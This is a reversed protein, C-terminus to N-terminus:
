VALYHAFLQSEHALLMCLRLARPSAPAGGFVMEGGRPVDGVLLPARAVFLEDILSEAALSGNLRPGGECLITRVRWRARLEALSARLTPQRVYEIAAACGSIEGEGHTLVVVRSGPDALLPLTPDLELSRSVIVALPQPALGQGRRRERVHPDRIIPGYRECRVTGAGAMVADARARLAHFLARDARSGLPGSRGGIAIRGDVSAIMNLAVGETAEGDANAGWGCLLEDATLEVSAGPLLRAFRPEAASADTV